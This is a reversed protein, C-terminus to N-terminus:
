INDVVDSYIYYISLSLSCPLFKLQTYVGGVLKLLNFLNKRKKYECFVTQITQNVNLFLRFHIINFPSSYATQDGRGTLNGIWAYTDHCYNWLIPNPTFPINLPFCQSFLLMLVVWKQAYVKNKFCKGLMRQQQIKCGILKRLKKEFATYLTYIKWLNKLVNPM